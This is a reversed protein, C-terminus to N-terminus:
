SRSQGKSPQVTLRAVIRRAFPAVVLVAPFAIVWSSLWARLWFIPLDAVLGVTSITSAGSIIFSMIMSLFFGFLFPAFRASIM